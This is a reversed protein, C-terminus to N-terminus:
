FRYRLKQGVKLKLLKVQGAPIELVFNAKKSPTITPPSQNKAPPQVSHEIHVIRHNDLWIIDLPLLMDKMWFPHRERKDFVFLMGKRPELARRFSLGRQRKQKTDSVEVDIQVGQPTIVIAHTYKFPEVGKLFFLFGFSCFLVFFLGLFRTSFSLRFIM